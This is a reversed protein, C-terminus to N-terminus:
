LSHDAAGPVVALAVPISKACDLLVDLAPTWTSADDDRWWFAAVEGAKRWEDLEKVLLHWHSM